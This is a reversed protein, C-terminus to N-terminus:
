HHGRVHLKRAGTAEAEAAPRPEPLELRSSRRARPRSRTAWSALVVVLVVARIYVEVADPVLVQVYVFGCALLATRWPFLDRLRETVATALILGAVYYDFGAPDLLLRATCGAAVAVLWDRRWACWAAAVVSGSLQVSRWWSPVHSDSLGFARVTSDPQLEFGFSVARLTMPEALLFPLWCAAPIAVALAVALPRRRLGLLLPLAVVGWPKWSLALGVLVAARLTKQQRVARVAGVFCLLVLGDEPHPVGGALFSWVSLVPLGVALTRLGDTVRVGEPHAWREALFLLYWGLVALGLHAAEDGLGAPLLDLLRVVLLGTPGAQLYPTDVYVSLGDASTLRRAGTTLLWWDAGLRSAWTQQLVLLLLLPHRM